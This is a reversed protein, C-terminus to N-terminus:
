EIEGCFGGNELEFNDNKNNKIIVGANQVKRYIKPRKQGNM